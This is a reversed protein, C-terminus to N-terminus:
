ASRRRDAQRARRGRDGVCEHEVIKGQDTAMGTTTYRKVHEISRMGERVALEIDKATLMTKFISSHNRRPERRRRAIAWSVAAPAAGRSSPSASARTPLGAGGRRRGRRSPGRRARRRSRFDRQLRRGVSRQASAGPVYIERACRVRAQRAIAFLSAGLADLRGGHPRSRLRGNSGRGDGRGESRVRLKRARRRTSAGTLCNHAGRRPGGARCRATPAPGIDAIARWKSARRSAPRAGRWLRQRRRRVRGRTEGAKAGYRNLYTRAAAALMVGPRDNDPFVLPREIAGCALVVRAARVKWLRERPAEARPPSLTPSANPWGSSTRRTIASPRPARCCSRMPWRRSGRCRWRSGTRPRSRRRDVARPKPSCAAAWNPRNTALSSAAARRRRGGLAAALGAAGAGVVLVDCFAYQQAYHDPDPARRRAGLGAARRIFPEYFRKWAWRAPAMFTKYYFGASFLRPPVLDNVRRHRLRALALPEPQTRGARRLARGPDRAPQAHLPRPGRDVDCWRTRSRQAPPSFAGRATINSHAASSICAM